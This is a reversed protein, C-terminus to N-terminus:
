VIMLRYILCFTLCSFTLIQTVSPKFALACPLFVVFLSSCVSLTTNGLYRSVSVIGHYFGVDVSQAYDGHLALSLTLTM